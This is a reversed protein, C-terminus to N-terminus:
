LAYPNVKLKVRSRKTQLGRSKLPLFLNVNKHAARNIAREKVNEDSCDIQGPYLNGEVRRDLLVSAKFENFSEDCYTKFDTDAVSLSKKKTVSFSCMAENVFLKFYNQEIQERAADACDTMKRTKIM